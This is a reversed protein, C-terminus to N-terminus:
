QKEEEAVSRGHIFSTTIENLIRVKEEFSGKINERIVRMNRLLEETTDPIVDELLERIRKAMTPSQGNTSIGIKVSGKAVVAGLYFDCLDPTDAVNVLLRRKRAIETISVHLSPDDTALIVLDKNDLDQFEFNREILQVYSHRLALEKVAPLMMGAVVTVRADPANKLLASLKELGVNGGGVLLTDLHDLKLFVPFLPNFSM